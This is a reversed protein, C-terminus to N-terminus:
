QMSTAPIQFNLPSLQFKHENGSHFFSFPLINLSRTYHFQPIEFVQIETEYAVAFVMELEIM